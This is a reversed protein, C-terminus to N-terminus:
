QYSRYQWMMTEHIVHLVRKNNASGVLAITHLPLWEGDGGVGM